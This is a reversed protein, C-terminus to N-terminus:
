THHRELISCISATLVEKTAPDVPGSEATFAKFLADNTTVINEIESSARPEALSRSAAVARRLVAKTEVETAPNASPWM